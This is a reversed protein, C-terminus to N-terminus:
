AIPNSWDAWCNPTEFLRVCVVRIPYDRLLGRAMHGLHEVMNEATPNSAMQYPNKNGGNIALWNDRIILPDEQHLILNHDWNTNIWDGVRQKVVSFDVVRGVADLKTAEVTIDAMYRHGHLYACKSEHGILRHGADFELRRTIQSM